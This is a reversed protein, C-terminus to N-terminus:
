RIIIDNYTVAKPLSRYYEIAIQKSAELRKNELDISDQYKKLELDRIRKVEEDINKSCIDMLRSVDKKCVSEPDISMLFDLATNYDRAAVNVEAKQILSKCLEDQYLKYTKIIEQEADKFCNVEEPISYLESIAERYKKQKSLLDANSILDSCVSSYYDIIKKKGNSMFIKLKDNSSSINQIADEIAVDKNVGFGKIDISSSLFITRNKKNMINLTVQLSINYINLLGTEVTGIDNVTLKPYILFTGVGFEDGSIGSETVLNTIKSNFKSLQAENVGNLNEPLVVNLKIKTLQSLSNTDQSYISRCSSFVFFM